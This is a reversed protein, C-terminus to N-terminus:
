KDDKLSASSQQNFSKRKRWVLYLGLKDETENQFFLLLCLWFVQKFTPSMECLNLM